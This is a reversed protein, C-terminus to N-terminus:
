YAGSDIVQGDNRSALYSHVNPDITYGVLHVSGDCFAMHFGNSHASGFIVQATYEANDQKPPNDYDTGCITDRDYGQAWCQDDNGVTGDYYEAPNLYKEGCLYTQSLGDSIDCMKCTGHFRFIGTPQHGSFDGHSQWAEETMADGEVLSDPGQWFKHSVPSAGCSGAYDSKGVMFITEPVDYFRDPHVYPYLAPARRTPCHLMSLVTRVLKGRAALRQDETEDLALDHLSRQEVYPLINYIWGGPQREDFGRMPDGVWRWGWGGAPLFGHIEEHNMCSLSLQKLNNKCQVQRAAERAAQVAPLLLAVLIGIITIVVLLEVLTFGNLPRHDTALPWRSRFAAHSRNRPCSPHQNM